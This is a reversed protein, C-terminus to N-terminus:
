GNKSVLIFMLLAGVATNFFNLLGNPLAREYTRNWNGVISELYSGVFGCATLLVGAIVLLSGHAGPGIIKFAVVQFPQGRLGWWAWM